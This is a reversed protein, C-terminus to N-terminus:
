KCYTVFATFYDIFLSYARFYSLLGGGSVVAPTTFIRLYFIEAFRYVTYM